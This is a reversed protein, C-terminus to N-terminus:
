KCTVGVATFAKTVDASNYGRADAAKVVGCAASNYTANATWYLRNADVFVEFAKRTNWNPSTAILYFAKNYVGSSYHVDLGDYYDKANGISQGDKTPDAFYRLAGTKKFIEAGVLFDNKGKMYYEAAEGAMDSFAENIGGSQGDYVLGSNQETFGHSVEHASVDLSVLPYFTSAGDGFTMATGDWFANEYNRSYHVKMLLKQNIPKLNFWDKYLNFVVNGFYHADNLPSYAGNIAKYTNTPCAFKYPTTGSTGGNLNVTAVNGSDMKCDSTVILPGYDTGYVYKGTKANGGPGNAEAHNLGEWQKLVQGNNADIILHPRSPEKGDVVFSVLYVLQATNRENLRVVLDAKENYTPNGNAKLSKAQSLAQASSLTPKASALDSQIGAIYQGSLKGSTKAVAGAQKEEVVAEGWVPVGQYYQQFRTVVKGTAFQTSRLPKLDAQNVGTFAVAGNAQIKGLKELDIREAALAASSFVALASLVLGRLMLQQKRM